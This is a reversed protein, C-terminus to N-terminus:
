GSSFLDLSLGEAETSGLQVTYRGTADPQVNQTELWLPAGGEQDKYIAFTIGTISPSPKGQAGTLKGSFSVLRPVGAVASSPTQQAQSPLSSLSFLLLAACLHVISKVNDITPRAKRRVYPNTRGIVTLRTFMASAEKTSITARNNKPAIMKFSSVAAVRRM